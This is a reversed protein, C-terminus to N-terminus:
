VENRDGNFRRRGVAGILMFLAGAGILWPLLAPSGTSALAASSGAGTNGTTGTFGSGTTGSSVVPSPTTTTTTTGSAPTTTSTTTTSTSTAAAATFTITVPIATLTLSDSMDEATYKVVEATTDSVAFTATGTDDTTANTATVTSGGSAATLTVTKGSVPDGSDDDLLVSVTATQKGDAPLSSPSVTVSCDAATPPPAPPNGFTVVGEADLVTNSDTVDTAQYTVVEAASDTVTFTAQGTQNTVGSVTTITSSGNLAKLTITKGSVPNSFYDALTVTVTSPTKGDAAPNAPNVTVTTGLGAPDAPGATYTISVTKTLVVNDTTDTATFTVSEAVSDDAEFEAIGSSDTVGPTSSGVPIPHTQINGGPAGQLTVTKGALPSGFQDTMTVTILTQTEGDAPSTTASATMTSASASPAGSSFVVTPKSTLTVGDTTDTATLTVSEAVTDTVSFSVQGNAGTVAPSSAGIVATGSPSTLTVTRGAVPSNSPTLLTVVATTGSGGLPAPSSATVTSDDGSVTLTGFTVSATNSIVTGSTTDTATFTVIESATDTATFTVVGQANTINPSAAPTIVASGTGALTVTQNAVPQANAAQDRLTVTITTSGSTVTTPNASVTSHTPDVAPAQFVVVPKQAVTVSDASDSATLTVSEPATDTVTFTTQGNADTVAPSPASVTTTSSSSSLTVAKGQVPVGGTALLTVTVTSLDVGDATATGPAAVATSLSASPTTAVAPPSGDGPNTGADGADPAIFFPASWLHPQTFDLQNNGIYLICETAATQGCATGSTGEGLSTSDPLAYLTYGSETFSGDTNPLIGAVITNGDCAATNTPVVGNPASCEVISIGSNNNNLGDDASFTENAPVVVNINQGSSFPIGATCTSSCQAANPITSGSTPGAAGAGVGLGLTVAAAIFLAAGSVQLITWSLPRHRNRRHRPTLRWGGKAQRV